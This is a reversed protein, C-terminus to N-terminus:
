KFATKMAIILEKITADTVSNVTEFNPLSPWGHDTFSVDNFIVEKAYRPIVHYHVEPDNMMLMLYNIKNFDFLTKLSNEIDKVILGFENHSETEINSYSTRLSKEILVLSGITIQSRRLLLYWYKYEKILLTDVEFTQLIDKM